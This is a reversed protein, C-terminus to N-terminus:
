RRGRHIVVIVSLNRGLGVGPGDLGNEQSLSGLEGRGASTEFGGDEGGVCHSEARSMFTKPTDGSVCM